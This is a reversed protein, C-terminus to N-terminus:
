INIFGYLKKKYRQAGWGTSFYLFPLKFLYLSRSLTNWRPMIELLMIFLPFSSGVLIAVHTNVHLFLENSIYNLFLIRRSIDPLTYFGSSLDIKQLKSILTFVVMQLHEKDKNNFVFSANELWYFSKKRIHTQVCCQM